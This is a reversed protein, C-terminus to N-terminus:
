SFTRLSAARGIGSFNLLKHDFWKDIKIVFIFREPFKEGVLHLVEHPLGVALWAAPSSPGRGVCDCFLPPSWPSWFSCVLFLVWFLWQELRSGMLPDEM